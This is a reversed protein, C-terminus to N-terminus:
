RIFIRVPKGQEDAYSVERNTMTVKEPKVGVAFKPAQDAETVCATWRVCPLAKTSGPTHDWNQVILPQEGDRLVLVDNSYNIYVHAGAVPAGDVSMSGLPDRLFLRQHYVYLGVVFLVLLLAFFKRM